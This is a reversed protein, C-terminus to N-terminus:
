PPDAYAFNYRVTGLSQELTLTYDGSSDRLHGILTARHHSETLHLRAPGTLNAHGGTLEFTLRASNDPELILTQGTHFTSEELLEHPDGDGSKLLASGTIGTIRVPQDVDFPIILAAILALLTLAIVALLALIISRRTPDM